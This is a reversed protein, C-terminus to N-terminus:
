WTLFSPDDHSIGARSAVDAQELGLLTRLVRIRRGIKPVSKRVALM